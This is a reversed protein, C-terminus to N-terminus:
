FPATWRDQCAVWEVSPCGEVAAVPGDEEQQASCAAVGDAVAGLVVVQSEHLELLESLVWVGHHAVGATRRVLAVGEATRPAALGLAKGAGVVALLLALKTHGGAATARGLGPPGDAPVLVPLELMGAAAATNVAAAATHVPAPVPSTGPVPAPAEEGADSHAALAAGAVVVAVARSGASVSVAAPVPSDPGAATGLVAALRGAAAPASVVTGAALM